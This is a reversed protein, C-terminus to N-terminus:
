SVRLVEADGKGGLEVWAGGCFMSAPVGARGSREFGAETLMAHGGEDKQALTPLDYGVRAAL